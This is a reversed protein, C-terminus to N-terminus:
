QVKKLYKRNFECGNLFVKGASIIDSFNKGSGVWRACLTTSKFFSAQWVLIMQCEGLNKDIADLCPLSIM